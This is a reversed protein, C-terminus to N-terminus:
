MAGELFKYVRLNSAIIARNVKLRVPNDLADVNYTDNASFVVSSATATYDSETQNFPQSM